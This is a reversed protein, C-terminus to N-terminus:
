VMSSAINVQTTGMQSMTQLGEEIITGQGQQLERIRDLAKKKSDSYLDFIMQNWQQDVILLSIDKQISARQKDIVAMSAQQTGKCGAILGKGLRTVLPVSSMAKLQATTRMSATVSHTTIKQGSKVAQNGAKELTQKAMKEVADQSFNKAMKSSAVKKLFKGGTKSTSTIAQKSLQATILEASEAAIKKAIQTAAVSIIQKSAEKTGAKVGESIATNMIAEGGEKMVKKTINPVIKAVLANRVSSTVDVVAGAIEFGMQVYGAKEAMDHYKDANEPDVIALTNAVAKVVGACGALLDMAGGAVMMPNGSMIGGAIKMVGTVVEVAAVVWDLCVSIVAAKKTKDQLEVNNAIEELRAKLQDARVQEQKDSLIKMVECKSTVTNGLIENSLLTSAMLMSDMPLAVLTELTLNIGSNGRDDNSAPPINQKVREFAADAERRSVPTAAARPTALSSTKPCDTAAFLTEANTQTQTVASNKKSVVDKSIASDDTLTNASMAGNLIMTM